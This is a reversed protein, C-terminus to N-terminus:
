APELVKHTAKVIRPLWYPSDWTGRHREGIRKYHRALLDRESDGMLSYGLSARLDASAKCAALEPYRAANM